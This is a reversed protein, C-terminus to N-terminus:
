MIHIVRCSMVYGGLVACVLSLGKLFMVVDGGTPLTGGVAGESWLVVFSPLFFSCPLTPLPENTRERLSPLNDLRYALKHALWGPM